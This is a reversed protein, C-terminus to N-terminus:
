DEQVRVGSEVETPTPCDLGLHFGYRKGCDACLRDVAGALVDVDMTWSSDLGPIGFKRESEDM